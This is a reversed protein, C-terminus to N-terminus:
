SSVNVADYASFPQRGAAQATTRNVVPMGTFRTMGTFGSLGSLM